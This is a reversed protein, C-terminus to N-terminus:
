SRRRFKRQRPRALLTVPLRVIEYAVFGLLAGFVTYFIGGADRPMRPIFGRETEAVLREERHRMLAYPKAIAWSGAIADHAAELQNFRTQATTELETRVVDSMLKYRLGTKVENLRARAQELDRTLREEYQSMFAHGQSAAVAMGAVFIAAILVDVKRWFWEM